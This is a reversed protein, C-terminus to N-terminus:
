PCTGPVPHGDSVLPSQQMKFSASNGGDTVSAVCWTATAPTGSASMTVPPDSQTFGKGRLAAVDAPPGGEETFYVNVAAAAERVNAKATADAADARQGLFIPLAIAALLGIIVVVVILEILTFGREDREVEHLQRLRKAFFRLM